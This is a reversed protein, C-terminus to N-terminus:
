NNDSMLPGLFWSSIARKAGRFQWIESRPASGRVGSPSAGWVGTQLHHALTYAKGHLRGAHEGVVLAVSPLQIRRMMRM